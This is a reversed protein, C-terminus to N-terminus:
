PLRYTKARQAFNEKVPKITKSKRLGSLDLAAYGNVKGKVQRAPAFVM